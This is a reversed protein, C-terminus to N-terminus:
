EYILEVKIIEEKVREKYSANKLMENHDKLWNEMDEENIEAKVPVLRDFKNMEEKYMLVVGSGIYHLNSGSSNTVFIKKLKKEKAAAKEEKAKEEATKAEELEKTAKEIKVNAKELDTGVANEAEKKAKELNEEAKKVTLKAM